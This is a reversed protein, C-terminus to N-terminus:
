TGTATDLEEHEDDEDEDHLEAMAADFQSFMVERGFRDREAHRLECPRNYAVQFAQAYTMSPDIPLPKNNMQSKMIAIRIRERRDEPSLQPGSLIIGSCALSRIFTLEIDSRSLSM